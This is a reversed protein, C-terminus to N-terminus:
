ARALGTGGSNVDNSPFHPAGSGSPPHPSGLTIGSGVMAWTQSSAQGAMQRPKRKSSVISGILSVIADRTRLIKEVPYFRILNKEINDLTLAQAFNHTPMMEARM